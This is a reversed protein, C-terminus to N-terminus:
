SGIRVECEFVREFAMPRRGGEGGRSRRECRVQACCDRGEEIRLRRKGHAEEEEEEEEARAHSGIDDPADRSGAPNRSPLVVYM